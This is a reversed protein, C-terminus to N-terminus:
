SFLPYILYFPCLYNFKSFVSYRLSTLDQFTGEEIFDIINLSLNLKTLKRLKSFPKGTIYKLLNFQLYLQELQTLSSFVEPKLETIQNKLISLRILKELPVFWKPDIDRIKNRDFSLFTLDTLDKFTDPEIVLHNQNLQLTTLRQYGEFTTHSIQELGCNILTLRRTNGKGLPLQAVNGFHADLIIVTPPTPCDLLSSNGQPLKSGKLDIQTCNLECLIQKFGNSFM